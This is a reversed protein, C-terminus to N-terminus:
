RRSIATCRKQKLILATRRQEQERVKMGANLRTFIQLCDNREGMRVERWFISQEFLNGKGTLKELETFANQAERERPTAKSTCAQYPVRVEVM